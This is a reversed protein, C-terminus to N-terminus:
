KEELAWMSLIMVMYQRWLGGKMMDSLRRSSATDIFDVLLMMVFVFFTIMLAHKFVPIIEMNEDTDDRGWVESLEYSALSHGFLSGGKQLVNRLFIPSLFCWKPLSLYTGRITFHNM